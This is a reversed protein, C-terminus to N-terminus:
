GNRNRFQPVTGPRAFVVSEVPEEVREGAKGNGRLNASGGPLVKRSILAAMTEKQPVSQDRGSRGHM